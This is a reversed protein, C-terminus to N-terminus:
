MGVVISTNSEDNFSSKFHTVQVRLPFRHFFLLEFEAGGGIERFLTDPSTNRNLSGYYENFNALVAIRRLSLPLVKFYLGSRFAQKLEASAKQVSYYNQSYYPTNRLIRTVTPYPLDDPSSDLEVIANQGDTQVAQYGASLYTQYFIDQSASATAGYIQRPANWDPASRANEAGIKLGATRYSQFGLTSGIRYNIGWQNLWTYKQDTDTM